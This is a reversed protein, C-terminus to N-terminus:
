YQLVIVVRWRWKMGFSVWRQACSTAQKDVGDEVGEDAEHNEEGVVTDLGPFVVEFLVPSPLARAARGPKDPGHPSVSAANRRRRPIILVIGNRRDSLLVFALPAQVELLAAIIGRTSIARCGHPLLRHQRNIMIFRISIM